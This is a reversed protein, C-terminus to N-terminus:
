DRRDFRVGYRSFFKTLEEGLDNAGLRSKDILDLQMGKTFSNRWKCDIILVSNNNINLESPSQPPESIYYM